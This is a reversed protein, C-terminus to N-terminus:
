RLRSRLPPKGIRTWKPGSRRSIWHKALWISGPEATIRKPTRTKPKRERTKHTRVGGTGVFGVVFRPCTDSEQMTQRSANESCCASNRRTRRSRFFLLRQPVDMFVLDCEISSARWGLSSIFVSGARASTAIPNMGISCSSSEDSGVSGLRSACQSQVTSWDYVKYLLEIDNGPM